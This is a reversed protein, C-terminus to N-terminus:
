FWKLLPAGLASLGIEAEHSVGFVVLVLIVFAVVSFGKFGRKLGQTNEGISFVRGSRNAIISLNVAGNLLATVLAIGLSGVFVVGMISSVQSTFPDMSLAACLITIGITILLLAIVASIGVLSLRSLFQASRPNM